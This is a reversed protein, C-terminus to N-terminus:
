IRKKRNEIIREDEFFDFPDIQADSFNENGCYIDSFICKKL